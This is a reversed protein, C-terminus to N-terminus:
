EISRHPTNFILQPSAEALQAIGCLAMAIELEDRLLRLVHAVGHAGAVALAHVHPRGVLVADAGLAIAKLVDTGRRIGGDVLLLLDDGVADAISPLAWATPVATDITRGGHNSVVVGAAGAARAQRADDPHLVGKVLIPLRTQAQLWTLDDWTPAQHMLDDFLASQGDALTRRAPRQIGDLNVASVDAPRKFGARRERDRAGHVPADVTLMLAEFGAGDARQVLERIFGRDPLLYLQLWLPGRDADNAVLRAVDELRVSAQTSLVLGAGQAAAAAAGALEGDPHLMRQYAIPALLVPLAMRRGLLETACSGGAVQRLVRPLLRLESWARRNDHLTIEDAAAGGFYSWAHDDLRERAAAEYDALAVIGPPIV